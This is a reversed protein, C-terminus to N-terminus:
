LKNPRPDKSVLPSATEHGCRSVNRSVHVHLQCSLLSAVGFSFCHSPPPTKPFPTLGDPTWLPLARLEPRNERLDRLRPSSIADFSAEDLSPALTEAGLPPWPPKGPSDSLHGANECRLRSRPPTLKNSCSGHNGSRRFRFMQQWAVATPRPAGATAPHPSSPVPVSIRRCESAGRLIRPSQSLLGVVTAPLLLM